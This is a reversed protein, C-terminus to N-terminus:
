SIKSGDGINIDTTLLTLQNKERAALLMGQSEIGRITTPQLNNVVVIQKGILINPDYHEAIGAVITKTHDGVQIKLKVLKDTKKIKEAEKITAVRLDIKQFEEFSVYKTEESATETNNLKEIEKEIMEDEIKTFLIESKKIRHNVQLNLNAADDWNQDEVNGPLNLFEWVKQATFPLVPHMLISLSRITQICLNITTACKQKDTKITKWPEQDNFYKNAYRALDMFEKLAPRFQFKDLFNGISGPSKKLKQILQNDLENFTDTPPVKGEFYKHTFTLTRNIFNGLIDALENNHRAQFDKWSFDSDKTEPINQALCYRISDTDFKKLIDELWVAYNRSTSLKKGELNLFENAPVNEPLVYDGHALLMAPFILCHFVINDKGIFHFLKTEKDQWYKKWLEPDGKQEAWEKTASVYGLPADFWVYLVKGKSEVGSNKAVDHPINVGWPLDRTVARDKLGETLWSKVQGMVNIKWDQHKNLWEELPKQLQSLPLYWHTTEKLVPETDTIASKPNILDTPSLTKGCKECQDGYAEEYGCSPCTGKIFRDALFMKAKPDYLQKEKKLVFIKKSALTSFFEQSTKHHMPSSTRGYYDFSMGFDAFSKKNREHFFDVVEQPSKNEARARLMIPVGHEDSGCIYVVNRKKLRCYRVFIDAPLYAGALHGLHIPGNAYPLASTVLYKKKAPL